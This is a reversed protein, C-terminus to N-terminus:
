HSACKSFFLDNIMKRQGCTLTLGENLALETDEKWAEIEIESRHNKNSQLKASFLLIFVLGEQRHMFISFMNIFIWHPAIFCVIQSQCQWLPTRKLLIMDFWKRHITKKWDKWTCWETSLQSFLISRWINSWSVIESM